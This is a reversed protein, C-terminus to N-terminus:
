SFMVFFIFTTITLVIEKNRSFYRTVCFLFFFIESNLVLIYWKYRFYIGFYRSLNTDLNMFIIHNLLQRNLILSKSQDCITISSDTRLEFTFTVSLSWQDFVSSIKRIRKTVTGNRSPNSIFTCLHEDDHSSTDRRPGYNCPM